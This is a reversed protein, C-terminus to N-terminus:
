CQVSWGNSSIGSTKQENESTKSENESQKPANSQMFIYDLTGKWRETYNTFIPEGTPDCRTPRLEESVSERYRSYVSHLMPYNDSKQMHSVLSRAEELRSQNHELDVSTCNERLFENTIPELNTVKNAEVDGHTRPTLFMTYDEDSVTQRTLFKYMLNDPTINFDGALIPTYSLDKNFRTLSSLMKECHKLKVFTYMPNWFFHTNALTLGFDSHDLSRLALFQCVVKVNLESHQVPDHEYDAAIDEFNLTEQKVKEFKDNKWFIACGHTRSEEKSRDKPVFVSDYGSQSLNDRWFESYGDVEQLCLIDVNCNQLEELINGRRFDKKLTKKSCYPYLTRRCLLQALINYSMVSFSFVSNGGGGGLKIFRRQFPFEM